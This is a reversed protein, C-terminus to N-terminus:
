AKPVYQRAQSGCCLPCYRAVNKTNKLKREFARDAGDFVRALQFTIGREVCVQTFRAGTGQAHHELREQLRAAYGTYHGAARPRVTRPDPGQALPADLHLIYVTM